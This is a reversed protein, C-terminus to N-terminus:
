FSIKRVIALIDLTSSICLRVLLIPPFISINEHPYFHLPPILRYEIADSSVRVHDLPFKDRKNAHM